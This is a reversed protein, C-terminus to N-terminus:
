IPRPTSTPTPRTAKPLSEAPGAAKPAVTRAEPAPKEAAKRNVAAQAAAQEANVRKLEENERKLREQEAALEADKRRREALELEVRAEAVPDFVIFQASSLMGLCAGATKLGRILMKGEVNVAYSGVAAYRKSVILPAEEARVDRSEGDGFNIRLGCWVRDTRDFTIGIRVDRGVAVRDADLEIRTMQQSWVISPLFFALVALAHKRM